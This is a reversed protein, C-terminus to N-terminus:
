EARQRVDRRGVLPQRRFIWLQEAPAVVHLTFTRPVRVVSGAVLSHPAVGAFDKIHKFIKSKLGGLFNLSFCIKFAHNSFFRKLKFSPNFKIHFKDPLPHDDPLKCFRLDWITTISLLCGWMSRLINFAHLATKRILTTIEKKPNVMTVTVACSPVTPFHMSNVVALWTLYAKFTSM